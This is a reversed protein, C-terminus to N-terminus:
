KTRWDPKLIRMRADIVQAIINQEREGHLVILRGTMEQYIAVPCTGIWDGPVATGIEDLIIKVGFQEVAPEVYYSRVVARQWPLRGAHTLVERTQSKSLIWVSRNDEVVVEGLGAAAAFEALAAEVATEGLALGGERNAAPVNDFDFGININARLAIQDALARVDQAPFNFVFKEALFEPKEPSKPPSQYERPKKMEALIAALKDQTYRPLIATLRSGTDDIIIRSNANAHYAYGLLRQLTTILHQKETEVNFEGILPKEVMALTGIAYSKTELETPSWGANRTIYVTDDNAFAFYANGQRVLWDLAQGAPMNTVTINVRRDLADALANDIAIGVSTARSFHKCADRFTVDRIALTVPKEFPSRLLEELMDPQASETVSVPPTSM